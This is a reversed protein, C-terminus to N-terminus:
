PRCEAPLLKPKMDVSQCTWRVRGGTDASPVLQFTRGNAPGSSLVLRIVGNSTNLQVDQLEPPLPPGFQVAALSGPLTRRTEYHEGVAAAAAKGHRLANAAKARVTYDQYAPLAIAALIGIGAGIAMIALLILAINSTGGKRALLAFQAQPNSSTHRASAILKQCHRYYGGNSILPPIVFLGLLYICYALVAFGPATIAVAGIAAGIISPLLFYLAAKGWMKRYMLWWFTFFFAPWHWGLRTGERDFEEFRRLYYDRNKEGIALEYFERAEESAAARPLPPRAVPEAGLTPETRGDTHLPAM